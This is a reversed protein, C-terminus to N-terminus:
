RCDNATSFTAPCYLTQAGRQYPLTALTVTLSLSQPRSTECGHSTSTVSAMRLPSFKTSTTTIPVSFFVSPGCWAPDFTPLAQGPM